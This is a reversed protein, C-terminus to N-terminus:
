VLPQNTITAVADTVDALRAELRGTINRWERRDVESSHQIAAVPALARQVRADADRQAVQLHAIESLANQQKMHMDQMVDDHIKLRQNVETQISSVLKNTHESARLGQTHLREQLQSISESLRGSVHDLRTSLEEKTRTYDTQVNEVRSRMAEVSDQLQTMWQVQREQQMHEHEQSASISEQLTTLKSTIEHKFTGFEKSEKNYLKESMTFIRTANALKEEYGIVQAALKAIRDEMTDVLLCSRSVKDLQAELFAIYANRDTMLRATDLASPKHQRYYKEFYGTSGSTM